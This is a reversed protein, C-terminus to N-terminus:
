RTGTTADGVEHPAGVFLNAGRHFVHNGVERAHNAVAGFGRAGELEGRADAGGDERCHEGHLAVADATYFADDVVVHVLAYAVEDADTCVGHVFGVLLHKINHHPLALLLPLPLLCIKWYFDAVNTVDVNQPNM